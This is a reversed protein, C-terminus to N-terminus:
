IFVLPLPPSVVYVYNVCINGTENNDFTLKLDDDVAAINNFDPVRNGSGAFTRTVEGAGTGLVGNDDRKAAICLEQLTGRATEGAETTTGIVMLDVAFAVNVGKPMPITLVGLSAMPIVIQGGQFRKSGAWFPMAPPFWQPLLTM